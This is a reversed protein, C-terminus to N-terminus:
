SGAAHRVAIAVIAAFTALAAALALLRGRTSRARKLAVIGLAVYLVLLLVKATLWGDVFPYQGVIVALLVAAVLLTTDIAYSAIRLARHNAWAAGAVRAMGRATFLSVSLAASAVHALRLEGFHSALTM